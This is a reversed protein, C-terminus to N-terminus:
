IKVVEMHKVDKYMMKIRLASKNDQGRQINVLNASPYDKCIKVVRQKM